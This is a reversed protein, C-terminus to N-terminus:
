GDPPSFFTSLMSDFFVCAVKISCTGCGAHCAVTDGHPQRVINAYCLMSTEQMYALYPVILSPIVEESWRRWQNTKKQSSTLHRVSPDNFFYLSDSFPDTPGDRDQPTVMRPASPLSLRQTLCQRGPMILVPPPGPLYLDLKRTQCLHRWAKNMWLQCVITNPPLEEQTASAAELTSVKRRRPKPRCVAM